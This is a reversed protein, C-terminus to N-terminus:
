GIRDGGKTRGGQEARFAVVVEPVCYELRQPLLLAIDRIRIHQCFAQRACAYIRVQNVPGKCRLSPFRQGVVCLAGIGTADEADWGKNAVILHKEAIIPQVDEAPTEAVLVDSALHLHPRAGRWRLDRWSM